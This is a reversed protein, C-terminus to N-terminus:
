EFNPPTRGVVKLGRMSGEGRGMGGIVERSGSWQSAYVLVLENLGWKWKGGQGSEWVWGQGVEGGGRVWKWGGSGSGGRGGRAWKGFVWGWGMEGVSGSM